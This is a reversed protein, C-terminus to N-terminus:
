GQMEGTEEERENYSVVRGRRILIATRKELSSVRRRIVRAQINKLLRKLKWEEGRGAEGQTRTPDM